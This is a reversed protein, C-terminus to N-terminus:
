RFLRELERLQKDATLPVLGSFAALLAIANPSSDAIDFGTQRIRGMVGLNVRGVQQYVENLGAIASNRDKHLEGRLLLERLLYTGSVRFFTEEFTAFPLHYRAMPQFITMSPCGSTAMLLGFLSSLGQQMDMDQRYFREATEVEVTVPEYSIADGFLELPRVLRLAIPCHDTKSWECGECSGADMQTWKPYPAEIHLDSLLTETDLHVEVEQPAHSARLFRYTVSITKNAGM